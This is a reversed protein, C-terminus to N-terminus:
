SLHVLGEVTGFARLKNGYVRWFDSQFPPMEARDSKETATSKSASQPSHSDTYSPGDGQTEKDNDSEISLSGLKDYINGHSFRSPVSYSRSGDQKDTEGTMEGAPTESSREDHLALSAPLSVGGEVSDESGLGSSDVRKVYTGEAELKSSLRILVLATLYSDFGAEHFFAQNGDYKLHENHTLCIPRKESKLKDDIEQLSSMPNIDGCNHTALYKTDIVLPFLAHFAQQFEEVTDPLPGIFFKYFYVVDTMCNHGVLVTKKTKLIDKIRDFRSNLARLDVTRAAGDPYYAFSKVDIRHLTENTMADVIWRFGTQRYIQQKVSHKRKHLIEKEREENLPIITIYSARSLTVLQPFEARVLQHVLRKEFRSLDGGEPEPTDKRSMIDLSTGGNKKWEEIRKRISDLLALSEVDDTDLHIDEINKRGLRNYATEKALKAEEHSLYPVGERFPKELKFDNRLLFEIAGSQFSFIREIDLKEDLLPNLNFNYPKLLYTEEEQDHIAFTLGIQLIQYREAAEKIDRYREQVTQRGTAHALKTAIGSLELDLSVFHCQSLDELIELLRPAFSIRDVDM